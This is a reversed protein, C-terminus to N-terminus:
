FGEEEPIPPLSVPLDDALQSPEYGENLNAESQCIIQKNELTPTEPMM